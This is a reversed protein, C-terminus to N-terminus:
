FAAISCVNFSACSNSQQKRVVIVCSCVYRISINNAHCFVSLHLAMFDIVMHWSKKMYNKSIQRKREERQDCLAGWYRMLVIMWNSRMSAGDCFWVGINRDICDCFAFSKFIFTKSYTQIDSQLLRALLLWEFYYFDLIKTCWDVLNSTLSIKWDVQSISYPVITKVNIKEPFIFKNQYIKRSLIKAM